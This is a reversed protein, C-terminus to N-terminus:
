MKEGRCLLLGRSTMQDLTIQEIHNKQLWISALSLFLSHEEKLNVDWSITTKEDQTMGVFFHSEEREPFSGHIDMWRAEKEPFFGKVLLTFPSEKEKGTIEGKCGYGPHFSFFGTIEDMGSFIGGEVSLYLRMEHWPHLLFSPASEKKPYDIDIIGKKATFPGLSSEMLLDEVESYLSLKEIEEGKKMFFSFSGKGTFLPLDEYLLSLFHHCEEM